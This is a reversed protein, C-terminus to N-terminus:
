AVANTAIHLLAIPFSYLVAVKEAHRKTPAPLAGQLGPYGSHVVEETATRGVLGHVETQGEDSERDQILNVQFKM